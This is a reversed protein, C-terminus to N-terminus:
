GKQAELKELSFSSLVDFCSGLMTTLDELTLGKHASLTQGKPLARYTTATVSRVTNNDNDERLTQGM